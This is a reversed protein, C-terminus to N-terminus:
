SDRSRPGSGLSISTLGAVPAGEQLFTELDTLMVYRHAGPLHRVPLQGCEALRYSTTRGWPAYLHVKSLPVAIPRPQGHTM